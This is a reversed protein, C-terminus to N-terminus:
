LGRYLERLNPHLRIPTPEPVGVAAALRDREAELEQLQGLLGPTRLGDAIADYLGRLKRETQALRADLTRRQGLLEDRRRNVEEVYGDLFAAIADPTLLREKVVTLITEEVAARKLGARQTCVGM